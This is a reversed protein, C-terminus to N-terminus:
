ESAADHHLTVVEAAALILIKSVGQRLEHKFQALMEIWREGADGVTPRFPEFLLFAERRGESLKELDTATRPLRLRGRQHKMILRAIVVAQM